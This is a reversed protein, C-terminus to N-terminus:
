RASTRYANLLVQRPVNAGNIGSGPLLGAMPNPAQTNFFAARGAVPLRTLEGLPIFNTNLNIPLKSTLNGSYSSM